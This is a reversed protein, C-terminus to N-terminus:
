KNILINFYYVSVNISRYIKKVLKFFDVDNNNDNWKSFEDNFQSINLLDDFWQCKDNKSSNVCIIFNECMLTCIMGMM